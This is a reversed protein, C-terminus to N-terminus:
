NLLIKWILLSVDKMQLWIYIKMSVTNNKQMSQNYVNTLYDQRASGCILHVMDYNKDINDILSKIPESIIDIYGEKDPFCTNIIRKIRNCMIISVCGNYDVSLICMKNCEKIVNHSDPNICKEKM